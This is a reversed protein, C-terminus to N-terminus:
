PGLFRLAPTLSARAIRDRSLSSSRPVSENAADWPSDSIGRALALRGTSRLNLRAAFPSLENAPRPAQLYNIILHKPSPSASLSIKTKRLLSDQSARLDHPYRASGALVRGYRDPTEKWERVVGIPIGARRYFSNLVDTVPAAWPNNRSITVALLQCEARSEFAHIVALALADDIDGGIDTDFILPVPPPRTGPLADGCGHAGM